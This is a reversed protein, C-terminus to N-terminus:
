ATKRLKSNKLIKRIMSKILFYAHQISENLQVAARLASNHMEIFVSLSINYTKLLQIKFLDHKKCQDQESDSIYAIFDGYQNIGIIHGSQQM